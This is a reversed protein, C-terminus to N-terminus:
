HTSVPGKLVIKYVGKRLKGDVTASLKVKLRLAAKTRAKNLKLKIPFDTLSDLSVDAGSEAELEAELWSRLAALSAADLSAILSTQKRNKASFSGALPPEADGLGTWTSEELEISLSAPARM